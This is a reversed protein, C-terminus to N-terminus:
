RELQWDVTFEPREVTFARGSISAITLDMRQSREDAVFPRPVASAADGVHATLEGRVIVSWARGSTLDCRDVELSARGRYAGIMSTPSTRIVIRTGADTEEVVYNVPVAVPYGDIEICVRGVPESRLRELSEATAL